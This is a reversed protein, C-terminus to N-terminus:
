RRRRAALLGGLGLLALSGPAPITGSSGSFSSDATFTRFTGDPHTVDSGGGDAAINTLTFNGDSPNTLTVGPPLFGTLLPGATYAFFPDSFLLSGTNIVQVYTGFAATGIVIDQNTTADYIRFFGQVPALTVLGLTIAQGLQMQLEMRADPFTVTGAGVSSGDIMFSLVATQDYSLAGVGPGAGSEVNSLQSGGAPDAFSMTIGALAPAAFALVALALTRAANRPM